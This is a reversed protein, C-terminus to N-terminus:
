SELFTIKISFLDIFIPKYYLKINYNLFFETKNKTYLIISNLLIIPLYFFTSILFKNFNIKKKFFILFLIAIFLLVIFIYNFFHIKFFM